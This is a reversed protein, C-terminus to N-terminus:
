SSVLMEESVMAEGSGVQLEGDARGLCIQLAAKEGRGFCLLGDLFWAVVV